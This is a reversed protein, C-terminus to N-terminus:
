KSKSDLRVPFSLTTCNDAKGVRRRRMVRTHPRPLNTLVALEIVCAFAHQFLRHLMKAQTRPRM